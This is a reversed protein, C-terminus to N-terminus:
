QKEKDTMKGKHGRGPGAKPPAERRSASLTPCLGSIAAACEPHERFHAVTAPKKCNPCKTVSPM